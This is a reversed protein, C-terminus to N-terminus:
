RDTKPYGLKLLGSRAGGVAGDKLWELSAGFLALHNSEWMANHSSCGLDILVKDSSGIDDYM